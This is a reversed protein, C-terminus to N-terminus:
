PEYNRVGTINRLRHEIAADREQAAQKMLLDLHNRVLSTEWSRSRSPLRPIETIGLSRLRDERRPPEELVTEVCHRM